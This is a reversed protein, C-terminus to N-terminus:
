DSIGRHDERTRSWKTKMLSIGYIGGIAGIFIVLLLKGPASRPLLGFVVIAAFVFATLMFCHMLIWKVLAFRDRTKSPAPSPAPSPIQLSAQHTVTFQGDRDWSTEGKIVLRTLAVPLTILTVPPFGTGLGRWWVHFSRKLAEFFRIRGGTKKTIRIKFLYKGLSTQFLALQLAEILIWGLTIVMFLGFTKEPKTVLHPSLAYLFLFLSGIDLSRALLRKIGDRARLVARRQLILFGITILLGIFILLYLISPETPFWESAKTPIDTSELKEVAFTHSAHLGLANISINKFWRATTM